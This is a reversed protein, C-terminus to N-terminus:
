TLPPVYVAGLNQLHMKHQMTFSCNRPCLACDALKELGREVRRSLEGSEWLKLYAPQFRPRTVTYSVSM